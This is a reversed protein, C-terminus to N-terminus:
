MGKFIVTRTSLSPVYFTETIQKSTAAFKEIQKRILYLAREFGAEDLKANKQIFLQYIAPETKRAGAGVKTVDTPLKRWGLFTQGESAILKETEAMLCERETKNQPFNFMGVAYHYKEPLNIGLKSCERRFFSDSIELLIGAGDGTDGGVEGGRHKLQCLMHIGQEVIKHSSIKKINAVFGIGCADHENEPNYLGHKKPLNTQKM